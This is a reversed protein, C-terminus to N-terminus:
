NETRSNVEPAAAREVNSFVPPLGRGCGPAAAAEEAVVVSRVIEYLGLEICGLCEGTRRDRVHMQSGRLDRVIEFPKEFAIPLVNCNSTNRSTPNMSM